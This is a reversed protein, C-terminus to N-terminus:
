RRRITIGSPPQWNRRSKRYGTRASTAPWGKTTHALREALSRDGSGLASELAAATGAQNEMFKRLLQLYLRANGTLRYLAGTVDVGPIAVQGVAGKSRQAILQAGAASQRLYGSMARFMADPDIPKTIHANMGADITKQREEVLAHASMAFIPLTKSDPIWGSTEPRRM